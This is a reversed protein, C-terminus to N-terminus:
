GSQQRSESCFYGIPRREDMQCAKDYLTVVFNEVAHFKPSNVGVILFPNNTLYEFVEMLDTYAMRASWATIKGKNTFVSTTDCGTLAHFFPLCISKLEGLYEEILQLNYITFDKGFGLAVSLQVGPKKMQHYKGVFIVLVDTDVSRIQIASYGNEVAHRVHVVMRTDAEEHGCVTMSPGDGVCLVNRGFTIYVIKGSFSAEGVENKKLSRGIVPYHQTRLSREDLEKVANKEPTSMSVTQITRM